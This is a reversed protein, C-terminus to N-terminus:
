HVGSGGAATTANMALSSDGPMHMSGQLRWDQAELRVYWHGPVLTPIASRYAGDRSRVLQETQDYGSRTAHMWRLKVSEPLKESASSATTLRVVVAGTAADLQLQARLGLRTAARDRDLLQNIELGREYYDDVVMGDRNVIALYLTVLGYCVALLPLGIVLWVMPERYWPRNESM